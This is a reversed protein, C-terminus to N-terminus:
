PLRPVRRIETPTPCDERQHDHLHDQGRAIRAPTDPRGSVTREEFAGLRHTARPAEVRGLDVDFPLESSRPRGLRGALSMDLRGPRARRARRPERPELRVRTMTAAAHPAPSPHRGHPPTQTRPNRTTNGGPRASCPPRLGGRATGSASPRSGTFLTTVVPRRSSPDRTVAWSGIAM